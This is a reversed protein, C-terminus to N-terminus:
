SVVHVYTTRPSQTSSSRCDIYRQKSCVSMILHISVWFCILSVNVMSVESRVEPSIQPLYTNVM